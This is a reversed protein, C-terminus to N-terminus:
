PLGHSITDAALVGSMVCLMRAAFSFLIYQPRTQLGVVRSAFEADRYPYVAVSMTLCSYKPCARVRVLLPWYEIGASILMTITPESRPLFLPTCPPPLSPLPSFLPPTYDKSIM